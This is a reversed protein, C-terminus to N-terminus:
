KTRSHKTSLNAKRYRKPQRIDVTSIQFNIKFFFFFFLESFFKQQGIRFERTDPIEVEPSGVNLLVCLQATDSLLILSLVAFVLQM